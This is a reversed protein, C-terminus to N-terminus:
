GGAIQPGLAATLASVIVSQEGVYLVILDGAQYFHPTAMWTVMTTGIATGDPSIGDAVRQANQADDFEFVQIQEEGIEIVRGIPEFFPQEVDGAVQAPLGADQLAEVLAQIGAITGQPEEIEATGSSCAALILAVVAIVLRRSYESAKM